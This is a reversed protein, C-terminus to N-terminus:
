TTRCREGKTTERGFLENVLEKASPAPVVRRAEDGPGMVAVADGGKRWLVLTAGPAAARLRARMDRGGAATDDLVILDPHLETARRMLAHGDDDGDAGDGRTADVVEAGGDVLARVM